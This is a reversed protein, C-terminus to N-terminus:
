PRMGYRELIDAYVGNERIAALGRDFAEILEAHRPNALGPAVYLPNSSLAVKTFEIEGLFAPSSEAIISKAVLEDELTLDIRGRLLKRINSMLDTTEDRAFLPSDLFADNYGYGAITGVTKGRLSNLGMFEFPDGKRKIFKIESVAYPQSFALYERRRITMWTDLLLDYTGSRVGAEARAWPMLEVRLEYGQTAFAARTIDAALGSKASGEELYPPWPDAVATVPRGQAGALAGLSCLALVALIRCRRSRARVARDSGDAGRPM